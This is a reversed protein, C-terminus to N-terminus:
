VEFGSHRCQIFLVGNIEKHTGHCEEGQLDGLYFFDSTVQDLPREPVPHPRQYGKPKATAPVAVVCPAYSSAVKMCHTHLRAGFLCHTTPKWLKAGHSHPTEWKRWWNVVRSALIDPM